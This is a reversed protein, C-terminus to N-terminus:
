CCCNVVAILLLLSGLVYAVTLRKGALSNNEEFLKNIKLYRDNWSFYIYNMSIYVCVLIGLFIKPVEVIQALLPRNALIEILPPITAINVMTVLSLMLVAYYKPFDDEGNVRLSWHYFQFFLYEYGKVLNMLGM